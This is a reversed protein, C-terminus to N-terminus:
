GFYVRLRNVLFPFGNKEALSKIMQWDIRLAEDIGSEPLLSVRFVIIGDEIDGFGFFGVLDLLLLSRVDRESVFFVPGANQRKTRIFLRM